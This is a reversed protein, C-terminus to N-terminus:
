LPQKIQHMKRVGASDLSCALPHPSIARNISTWNCLTHRCTDRQLSEPARTSQPEEGRPGLTPTKSQKVASPRSGYNAERVSEGTMLPLGLSLSLLRHPACQWHKRKRESLRDLLSFAYPPMNHKLATNFIDGMAGTQM